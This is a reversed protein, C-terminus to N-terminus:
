KGGVNLILNFRGQKTEDHCDECLTEGNSVEWLEKCKRADEINKIAYIELLIKFQKLHHAEIYCKNKGCEQCTFNDKEFVAKRWSIYEPMKRILKDLKSIGGKWQYAKEGKHSESIKIKSKETLFSKHGKKFGGKGELNYNPHGQNFGKLGKNWPVSGNSFTGKFGNKYHNKYDEGKLNKNWVM